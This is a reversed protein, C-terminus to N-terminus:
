EDALLFHVFELLHNVCCFSQASPLNDENILLQAHFCIQSPVVHKEQLKRQKVM